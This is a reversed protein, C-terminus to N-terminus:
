PSMPTVGVGATARRRCIRPMSRHDIATAPREGQTTKEKSAMATEDIPPPDCARDSDAPHSGPATAIELIEHAIPLFASWKLQMRGHSM